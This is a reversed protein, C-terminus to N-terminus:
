AVRAAYIELHRRVFEADLESEADTAKRAAPPKPWRRERLRRNVVYPMIAIADDLAKTM